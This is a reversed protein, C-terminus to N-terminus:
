RRRRRRCDGVVMYLLPRCSFYRVSRRWLHEQDVPTAVVDRGVSLRHVCQDLHGRHGVALDSLAGTGSTTTWAPASARAPAQDDHAGSRGRPVARRLRHRLSVLEDEVVPGLVEFRALALDSSRARWVGAAGPYRLHMPFAAKDHVSKDEAEPQEIWNGIAQRQERSFKMAAACTPM